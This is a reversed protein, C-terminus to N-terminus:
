WPRLSCGKWKKPRMRLQDEYFKIAGQEFEMGLDVAALDGTDAKIESAQSAM